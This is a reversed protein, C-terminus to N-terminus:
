PDKESGAKPTEGPASKAGDALWGNVVTLTDVGSPNGRAGIVPVPRDAAPYAVEVLKFYESNVGLAADSDPWAGHATRYALCAEAVAKLAVDVTRAKARVGEVVWFGWAFTGVATAVFVVLLM